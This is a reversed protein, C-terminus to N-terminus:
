DHETTGRARTVGYAAPTFAHWDSVDCAAIGDGYLLAQMGLSRPGAVDCELRDGVFLVDPGPSPDGRLAALAALYIRRDPKRWGVECSDIVADFIELLGHHELIHRPLGAMFFNSVVGLTAVGRWANLMKRVGPLVHTNAVYQAAFMEAMEGAVTLAEDASLGANASRLSALREALPPEELAARQQREACYARWSADFSEVSDYLGCEVGHAAIPAWCEEQDGVGILTGICDFLICRPPRM